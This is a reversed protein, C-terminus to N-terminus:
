WDVEDEGVLEDFPTNIGEIISEALGPISNIYLTEKISNLEDEDILIVRRGEEDYISVPCNSDCVNEILQYFNQKAETASINTM